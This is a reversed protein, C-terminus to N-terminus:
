PSGSKGSSAQPRVAPPGGEGDAQSTRSRRARAAQNRVRAEREDDEAGVPRLDLDDDIMMPDFNEGRAM